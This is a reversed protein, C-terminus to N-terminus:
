RSLRAWRDAPDARVVPDTATDHRLDFTIRVRDPYRGVRFQRFGEGKLRQRDSTLARRPEKVDVYLRPPDQLSDYLFGGESLLDRFM